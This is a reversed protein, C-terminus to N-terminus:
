YSAVHGGVKQYIATQRTYRELGLNASSTTINAVLQKNKFM